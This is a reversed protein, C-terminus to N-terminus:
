VILKKGVHGYIFNNLKSLFKTAYLGTCHLPMIFELDQTSLYDYIRKIYEKSAHMLHFGGVVGRVRKNIKKAYEIVNIIGSHACGTFVVDEVIMFMDDDVYDIKYTGDELVKYFLDREYPFLREVKGSIIIDERYYPKDEVLILNRRKLCEKLERDIGIYRGERYRDVFAQPHIYIPIEPRREILHKLGDTHDYHGHSIVISHFNDDEGTLKLNRSLINPDPGADFLIKKDETKVVISLGHEPVYPRSAINDVLVLIEM